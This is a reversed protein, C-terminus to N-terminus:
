LLLVFELFFTYNRLNKNHVSLILYTRGGESVLSLFADISRRVGQQASVELIQNERTLIRRVEKGENAKTHICQTMSVMRHIRFAMSIVASGNKGKVFVERSARESSEM